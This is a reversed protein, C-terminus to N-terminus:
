FDFLCTSKSSCFHWVSCQTKTTFPFPWQFLISLNFNFELVELDLHQDLRKHFLYLITLDFTGKCGRRGDDGRWPFHWKWYASISEEIWGLNFSSHSFSWHSSNSKLSHGSKYCSPVKSLSLNYWDTVLLGIVNDSITHPAVSLSHLGSNGEQQQGTNKQYRQNSWRLSDGSYCIRM